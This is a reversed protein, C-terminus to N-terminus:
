ANGGIRSAVAQTLVPLFEDRPLQLAQLNDIRNKNLTHSPHRQTIAIEITLRV